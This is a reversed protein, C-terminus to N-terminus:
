CNFEVCHYIVDKWTFMNKVVADDFLTWESQANYDPIVNNLKGPAKRFFSVYHADQICIFGKLM